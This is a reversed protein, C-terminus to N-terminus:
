IETYEFTLWWEFISKGIQINTIVKDSCVKAYSNIKCHFISLSWGSYGSAPITEEISSNVALM